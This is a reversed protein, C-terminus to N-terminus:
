PASPPQPTSPNLPQPTSTQGPISRSRVWRASDKLFGSTRDILRQNLEHVHHELERIRERAAALETDRADPTM